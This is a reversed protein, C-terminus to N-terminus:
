LGNRQASDGLTRVSPKAKQDFTQRDFSRVSAMAAIVMGTMWRRRAPLIM